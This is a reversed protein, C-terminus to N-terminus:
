VAFFGLAQGDNCGVRSQGTRRCQFNQVCQKQDSVHFFILLRLTKGQAARQDAMRVVPQRIQVDDFDGLRIQPIQLGTQIFRNM